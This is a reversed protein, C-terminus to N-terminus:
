LMELNTIVVTLLVLRPIAAKFKMNVLLVFANEVSLLLPLDLRVNLVILRLIVNLVNLLVHPVLVILKMAM